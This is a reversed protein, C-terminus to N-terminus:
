PTTNAGARSRKRAEGGAITELRMAEVDAALLPGLAEIVRGYHPTALHRQHDEESRFIEVVVLTDPRDLDRHLAMRAVFIVHQV